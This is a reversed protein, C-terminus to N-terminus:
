SFLIVDHLSQTMTVLQEPFLICMSAHILNLSLVLLYTLTYDFLVFVRISLQL